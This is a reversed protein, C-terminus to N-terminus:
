SAAPYRKKSGGTNMKWLTAGTNLKALATLVDSNNDTYDTLNLRKIIRAKDEAMAQPSSAEIYYIAKFNPQNDRLWKATARRQADTRHPRGTIVVFDSKPTYIVPAGAFIDEMAKFRAQSLNVSALTDDLDYGQM